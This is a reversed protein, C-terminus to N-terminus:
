GSRVCRTPTGVNGQPMIEPPQLEILSRLDDETFVERDSPIQRQQKRTKYKAASPDSISNM